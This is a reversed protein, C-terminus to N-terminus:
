SLGRCNKFPMLRRSGNVWINTSPLFLVILHFYLAFSNGDLNVALLHEQRKKKKHKTKKTHEQREMSQKNWEYGVGSEQRAQRDRQGSNQFSFSMETEILSDLYKLNEIKNGSVTIVM